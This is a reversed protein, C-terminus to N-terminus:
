GAAYSSLFSYFMPLKLRQQDKRCWAIVTGDSNSTYLHHGDCSFTLSVIPKNSKPFTIERVPKLDWTSWLRVIGNQLGGAIVNVSIGEPQNSFTISCIIERCHVHGVLDGNITWLRLDSGGGVSDCVTAIDGTTESASAAIVPSKHGSLTQVYCLRNLDWLICTEDKSVSILISYPKCIILSTIESTHGYLQVQSEVEIELPTQNTFRNVYATIVGCKSGTFLQCSEPVWTCSTVQYLHSIQIFNVPPESQKSKMRLINDMYGWSLIASWQIDTSHMSRVGQEKSYIMMLCFKPSLGCIAKTPLAQLVGFREGHPQSFCVVPDPASPSGVYEGWKLGKIWLLPNPYVVDKIHEKTEGFALHVLLGVAAPLEGEINLKSVPRSVHATHFLQRPTQGYTKIMTELARRQVPDEVASVDIGFYTAPHFVNIAQVAARGKQKCGFVLDFWHCLTQSVYDSELAQRHILIFLRPDNRAWPPLNVHNVREGNQRVGFDFGERNVLFEPLYFFEPILEKVDTMSEYSSLRWTTNMSHFTRDPIDFSQDQYALFMKTFPPMRVLFHLVTGSNSYHSGYHYPQVPPMPEDEKAGKRYEEELYKYNDVYRDEKERSQVAIPKALHRFIAPDNLDLTESSYDALIFPFVPYQMLDNFSRGSHKNLHTLYEFNTIHGTCWLQTLAAINGYELLNPLNNSLIHKYVDDRVKTNHFALLLTRGNTLFIEVANDRLQWWRTHVEKIEEYTWSFSVPDPEENLPSSESTYSTDEVFYMGSKGLLLEGCTESSPAVSICRRNFRILESAAKDKVTSSLSPTKDESLYVHPPKTVEQTKRREKLIYKNPITLYCRQLRRRERNPGETPDLQWSTPYSDMDCWLAREHTLQQVLEQWHRRSRLDVKHTERIHQIVKKREHGQSLCVAQTVEGAIKSIYKSKADLRQFLNQQNNSITKDWADKADTEETEYKKQEEKIANLLDPKTPACSPIYKHGSLKFEKMLLEACVQEDGILEEKHEHMFEYLYLVMKPGHQLAPSFCDQIIEQHNPENLIEIAQKREQLPRNPSFIHVLLRGLQVRFVDKCSWLLLKWQERHTNRGEGLSLSIGELLMRFIENQFNKRVNPLEQQEEGESALYILRNVALVILRQLRQVFESETARIPNEQSMRRQMMVTLEDSAVSRMRMLLTDPQTLSFRPPGAISKRKYLAHHHTPPLNFSNILGQSNETATTKVFEIASQLVKFQLTVALNQTTKNNSNQLYGLLVIIDEIVRFYQSGSSSCSHITLTVLLQQLDCMLLKYDNLPITTKLENLAALTNCLVYLLGNDLLIDAVKSCSNLIRLLFYFVNHLLTSDYLSNEILGLVPTVCWKRFVSANKLDEIDVEEDLCFPRGFLMELFCELLAPSGQHLYLQNALLSFGHKKLFTEKQEQSARHFYADLLKVVGQQILSSPHNVLVLLIDPEILKDMVDGLMLDPLILLAGSLLDYLGCSILVACDESSGDTSDADNASAQFHSPLLIHEWEGPSTNKDTISPWCVIPPLGSSVPYKLGLCELNNQHTHFSSLGKLNDPRHSLLEETDSCSQEANTKRDKARFATQELYVKSYEDFKDASLNESQSVAQATVCTSVFMEELEGKVTQSRGDFRDQLLVVTSTLDDTSKSLSSRRSKVESSFTPSSSLSRSRLKNITAPVIAESYPFSSDNGESRVADFDSLSPMVFESSTGAKKVISWRQYIITQIKEMFLPGDIHLSFFFNTSNHSIFTNTPPHIALLFDMILKLLELHPPSGLVEEIIKVYSQCVKLPMSALHLESHEQMVQCALLFHHVIRARLLQKVNFMQQPHDNRILIELSALLTEWVGKQAKSWIKWEFLIEELLKIDRIVATTGIQLIFQGSDTIRLIHEDCCGTLLTKLIHFGVICKPKILLQRIISYGDCNEMEQMRQQNLKMSSLIVQLALAQTEESRSLDVVRAFLFVFAAIGGIEHVVSQLHEHQVTQLNKLNQFDPLNSLAERSSFPRQSPVTKVQGKLRVIPEYITYQAPYCPTYVVALKEILPGVDVEKEKIFLDRIKDDQLIYKNIYKSYNNKTNGYKCPMFSTCDTGCAYIYFAEESGITADNFLLVNGLDWRGPFSLEDQSPTSHGIMCFTKNCDSSLSRRPLTYYLDVDPKREGSIWLSLKGHINKKGESHQLYTVNLLQWKGTNLINEQSATEALLGTKIEENPDICMRFILARTKLDAWVQVMLAKSGLSILHVCRDKVHEDGCSPHEVAHQEGAIYDVGSSSIVSKRRTRIKKQKEGDNFCDIKMWLSVSFGDSMHPWCNQGVLPLHIPAIHWSSLRQHVLIDSGPEKQALFPKSRKLLGACKSGVVGNTKQGSASAVSPNHQLPFTLYQSPSMDADTEVLKMIGELLLELAQAKELFFKMLLGLEESCIRSSMLLVLLDTLLLQCVKFSPDTQSFIKRFGRLLGKVAGQQILLMANRKKGRAIEILNYFFYELVDLSPQNASLLNLGLICLEPFILERQSNYEELSSPHLSLVSSGGKTTTDSEEMNGMDAEPNSESDADYGEEVASDKFGYCQSVKIDESPDLSHCIAAEETQCVKETRPGSHNFDDSYKAMAVRLLSDFLTEALTTEILGSECLLDHMEHLIQDVNLSKSASESDIKQQFSTASHLCITLLCELLRISQFSCEDLKLTRKMDQIEPKNMVHEMAPFPESSFYLQDKPELKTESQDSNNFGKSLFLEGSEMSDSCSKNFIPKSCSLEHVPKNKSTLIGKNTSLKQIIMFILRHCADFGGLKHFQKQYIPSLLYLKRCMSWIDAARQIHEESPLTLSELSLFPPIDTFHDSATSDYGSTDESDNAGERDFEADKSVCLFAVCLFLNIVSVQNKHRKSKPCDEKLTAYFNSLSRLPGSFMEQSKMNSLFHTQEADVNLEPCEGLCFILTQFIQLSPHRFLDLYNLETLQNVGNCKLFLDRVVRSQLLTPLTQLYTQIVNEPLGKSPHSCAPSCSTTRVLQQSHHVLEVGRQLVPKLIYVYLKWQVVANGKLILHCIHSAIQGSFQHNEGCALDQYAQLADWKLLLDEPVSNPLIGQFRYSFSGFNSSPGADSINGHFDELEAIQHVDITCINCAAKKIKTSVEGGGLQDLILKTLIDLIYKQSNKLTPLKFAHLLPVTVSQPDMCCCVGVSAIGSLIQEYTSNLSVQPLLRLCQHALVAVCCCREPYHIGENGSEEFQSKFMPNRFTSVSLGSLDRHHHIFHSYDCRRHRRRTCLSQHLQEAKVKKITGIIKMISSILCTAHESAQFSDDRERAALWEIHLVTTEFLEIGQHHIFEHVLDIAQSFCFPNSSNTQLCCLLVQLIGELLEPLLLARHCYRSFTVNQQIDKTKMQWSIFPNSQKDLYAKIKITCRLLDIVHKRIDEPMAQMSIINVSMLNLVTRLLMRQVMAVPEETWGTSLAELEAPESPNCSNGLGAMFETLTTLVNAALATNHNLAMDCTCIKELLSLLIHCLDFSSNGVTNVLDLEAMCNPIKLDLEPIIGSWDNLDGTHRLLSSEMEPHLATDISALHHDKDRYLVFPQLQSHRRTVSTNEDLGPDSDSTSLSNKKEETVSYQCTPRRKRGTKFSLLSQNIEVFPHPNGEVDVKEQSIFSNFSSKTVFPHSSFLSAFDKAKEEKVPIKWVLPLLSLLLALLEERCTLDQDIIIGNLAKLLVFGRGKLLYQGLVAMHSEDEEEDMTEAVQLLGANCLRNVDTLFERALTNSGSNM